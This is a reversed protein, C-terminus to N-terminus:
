FKCELRQLEDGVNKGRQFIYNMLHEKRWVQRKLEMGKMKRIVEEKTKKKGGKRGLTRNALYIYLQKGKVDSM